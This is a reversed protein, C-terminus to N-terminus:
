KGFCFICSIELDCVCAGRTEKLEKFLMINFQFLHL